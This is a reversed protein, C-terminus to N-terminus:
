LRGRLGSETMVEIVQEPTMETLAKRLAQFGGRDIYHQTNEPDIIGCNRLLIRQQKGYFAIESWTEVLTGKVPDFYLLREVREGGVIHQEVIEPADEPKVLTYFTEEPHVVVIPGQSCFGFCGTRRVEVQGNLDHRDLEERLAQRLEASASSMCGTGMCVAIWTRGLNHVIEVTEVELEKSM